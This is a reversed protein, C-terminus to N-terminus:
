ETATVLAVSSAVVAQLSAAAISLNDGIVPLSSCSQLQEPSLQVIADALASISELTLAAHEQALLILPLNSFLTDALATDPSTVSLETLNCSGDISGHLDCIASCSAATGCATICSGVAGPACSLDGLNVALSSTDQHANIGNVADDCAQALQEEPTAGSIAGLSGLDTAITTCTTLVHQVLGDGFLTSQESVELATQWPACSMIVTGGGDGGDGGSSSTAADDGCAGCVVLGVLVCAGLRFSAMM